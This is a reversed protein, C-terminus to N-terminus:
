NAPTLRILFGKWSGSHHRDAAPMVMWRGPKLILTTNLGSQDFVPRLIPPGASAVPEARTMESRHFLLHMKGDEGLTAKLVFVAEAQQEATVRGEM